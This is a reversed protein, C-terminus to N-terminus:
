AAAEARDRARVLDAAARQREVCLGVKTVVAQLLESLRDGLAVPAQSGLELVGGVASGVRVPLLLGARM